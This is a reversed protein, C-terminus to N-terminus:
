QLKNFVDEITEMTFQKSNPWLYQLFKIWEERFHGRGIDPYSNWHYGTDKDFKDVLHEYVEQFLVKTGKERLDGRSIRFQLARKIYIHIDPKGSDAVSVIESVLSTPKGKSSSRHELVAVAIDKIDNPTFREPWYEELFQYTLGYSILHHDDRNYRCGLDHFLAALQVKLIDDASLEAGKAMETALSCVGYVHGLNHALDNQIISKVCTRILTLPITNGFLDQFKRIFMVQTSMEANVYEM